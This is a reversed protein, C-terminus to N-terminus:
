FGTFSAPLRSKWFYGLWRGGFTDRVEVGSTLPERWPRWSALLALLFFSFRSQILSSASVESKIPSNRKKRPSRPTKAVREVILRNLHVLKEETFEDIRALMQSVLPSFGENM